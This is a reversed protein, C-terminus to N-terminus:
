QPGQGAALEAEVGQQQLLSVIFSVGKDRLAVLKRVAL